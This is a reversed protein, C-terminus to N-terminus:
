RNIEVLLVWSGLAAKVIGLIMGAAILHLGGPRGALLLIAGALYPLVTAQLLLLNARARSSGAPAADRILRLNLATAALWVLGAAALTEGAFAAAPQDPILALAAVTIQLLILVLALEARRPLSAYALIRPLNLSLGVFLLGLLTAGAGLQAGFFAQWSGFGEGM